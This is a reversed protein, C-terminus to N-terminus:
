VHGIVYDDDLGDTRRKTPPRATKRSHMGNVQEGRHLGFQHLRLPSSGTSTSWITPPQTLWTPSCVNLMARPAHSVAPMGIVVAAVM